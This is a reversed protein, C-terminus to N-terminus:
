LFELIYNLEDSLVTFLEASLYTTDVNKLTKDTDYGMYQIAEIAEKYIALTFEDEPKVETFNYEKGEAMGYVNEDVYVRFENIRETFENWEDATIPCVVLCNWKDSMAAELYQPPYNGWSWRWRKPMSPITYQVWSTFASSDNENLSIARFKYTDGSNLGSIDFSIETGDKNIYHRQAFHGNPANIWNACEWPEIDSPLDYNYAIELVKLDNKYPSLTGGYGDLCRAPFTHDSFTSYPNHFIDNGVGLCEVIEEWATAQYTTMWMKETCLRIEGQTLYTGAGFNSWEGFYRVAGSNPEPIDENWLEVIREISM